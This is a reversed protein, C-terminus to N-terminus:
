AGGPRPVPPPAPTAGPPVLWIPHGRMVRIAGAGTRLRLRVEGRTGKETVTARRDIGFPVQSSPLDIWGLATEADVVLAANVPVWVNVEGVTTDLSVSRAAGGLGVDALDLEVTGSGGGYAPQVDAVTRTAAFQYGVPGTPHLGMAEFTGFEVALVALLAAPLALWRGRGFLTGVVLGAGVVVLAISIASSVTLHVLGARDLVLAV